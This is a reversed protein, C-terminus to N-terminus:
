DAVAFVRVIREGRRVLAMQVGTILPAANQVVPSGPPQGPPQGSPQGPPQGGPSTSVRPSAGSEAEPESVTEQPLSVALAAAPQWGRGTSWGRFEVAEVGPVIAQWTFPMDPTSSGERPMSWARFGRELVGERLRWIVQQIQMPGDLYSERLVALAPPQRDDGPLFGVAPVSLGLLRVPWSRRLDEEMQAMAITLARLDDSREVIADRGRLVSEMGRWSLVALVSLLSVAILLELLTFGRASRRM